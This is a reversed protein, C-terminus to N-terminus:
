LAQCRRLGRICLHRCPAARVPATLLLAAPCPVARCPSAPLAWNRPALSPAPEALCPLVRSPGAHCPQRPMAHCAPWPRYRAAREIGQHHCPLSRSMTLNTRTTKAGGLDCREGSGETGRRPAPRLAAPSRAVWYRIRTGVVVASGSYIGTRWGRSRREV